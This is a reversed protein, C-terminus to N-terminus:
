STAEVLPAVPNVEPAVSKSEVRNYFSRDEKLKTAKGTRNRLYYLKSRRSQGSRLVKVAVIKPSNIFFSREVGVNQMVKRVTFTKTTGSGNISIIVGEYNQNREKTGETISVTVKVTDGVKLTPVGSKVNRQSLKLVKQNM